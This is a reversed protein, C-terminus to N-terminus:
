SYTAQAHGNLSATLKANLHAPDPQRGLAHQRAIGRFFGIGGCPGPSLDAGDFIAREFDGDNIEIGRM